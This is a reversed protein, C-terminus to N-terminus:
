AVTKICNQSKVAHYIGPRDVPPSTAHWRVDPLPLVKVEFGCHYLVSPLRLECFVDSAFLRDWETSAVADLALRHYVTVGLPVIGVPEMGVPLREAERMWVWDRNSRRKHGKGAMGKVNSVDPLLASVLVDYELYWLHESEVHNRNERWWDRLFRDCSRWLDKKPGQREDFGVFVKLGPNSEKLQGLWPTGTTGYKVVLASCGQVPSGSLAPNDAQKSEDM